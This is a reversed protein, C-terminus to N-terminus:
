KREVVAAFDHRYTPWDDDRDTIEIPEDFADGVEIVEESTDSPMSPGTKGPVMATFGNLKGKIYCTCAHPTSYLMGNAPLIGYLCAGRIWHNEDYSRTQPNVYEVGSRSLLVFDGSAKAKYCRHHGIGQFAPLDFQEKIEGTVPDRAIFTGPAKAQTINMSWALGNMLMLTAPSRYDGQTWESSWLTTGNMMSLATMKRDSVFLVAEKHLVLTPADESYLSLAQKLEESKWNEEGTKLDLCVVQDGDHYVVNGDRSSLTLPLVRPGIRTWLIKGTDAQVAVIRKAKSHDIVARNRSDYNFNRRLQRQRELEAMDSPDPDVQVLLIGDTYIVEEAAGTGEYTKVENGTAADIQMLPGNIDMPLYVHDGIAILKRPMQAPGSKWPFYRTLWQALPKKWLIVGNYADRAVLQWDSPLQVSARPGEDIIYFLRGGSSVMANLSAMSEHAASWLPKGAWQFHRPLGTGPDEGVPNNTADYQYHTWDRRSDAPPKRQIRWQGDEYTFLVGGPVLVRMAEANTLEIAENVM